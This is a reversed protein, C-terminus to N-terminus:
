GVQQVRHMAEHKQAVPVHRGLAPPCGVALGRVSKRQALTVELAMPMATNPNVVERYVVRGPTRESSAGALGLSCRFAM